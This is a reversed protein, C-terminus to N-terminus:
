TTHRALDIRTVKHLALPFAFALPAAGRTKEAVSKLTLVTFIELAAVAFELPGAAVDVLTIKLIVLPVSEAFHVPSIAGAVFALPLTADLM